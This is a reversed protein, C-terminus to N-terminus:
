KEANEEGVNGLIELNRRIVDRGRWSYARESFEGDTMKDLSSLSLEPLRKEAFFDVSGCTMNKTHPCAMQCVDCGWVSGGNALAKKEDETLVGKKQSLASLCKEASLGVPCARLCAGCNECEACGYNQADTKINTLIEGIFVFSSYKKTILLHNKGIVGLGALAAAHVEAIPSHDAFGAFLSDPFEKKLKPIVREFLEKFYLHYDRPVAYCSLNSSENGDTVYPVALMVASGSTIGTRELLYPKIIRCDGLDVPAFLEIGENKMIESICTMLEMM